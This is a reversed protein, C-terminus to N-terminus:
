DHKYVSQNTEYKYLIDTRVTYKRGKILRSGEHYLDHQFILISGTKPVVEVDGEDSKEVRKLFTTAGGKFGENLYLQITLYTRDGNDRRYSGDMHPAFFDGPNYRLFRFRENIGIVEHGKFTSPVFNKIRQWMDDAYEFSDVLCRDSKRYDPVYVEKGPGTNIVAPIYKQKETDQIM